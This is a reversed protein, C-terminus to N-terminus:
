AVIDFAKVIFTVTGIKVIYIIGTVIIFMMFMYIIPNVNGYSHFTVVDSFISTLTVINKMIIVNSISLRATVLVTWPQTLLRVATM